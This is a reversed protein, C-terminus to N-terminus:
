TLFSIGFTFLTSYFTLVGEVWEVRTCKHETLSSKDGRFEFTVFSVSKFLCFFDSERMASVKTRGSKVGIYASRLRRKEWWRESSGHRFNELERM